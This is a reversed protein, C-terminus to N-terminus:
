YDGVYNLIRNIKKLRDQAKGMRARIEAELNLLKGYAIEREYASETTEVTDLLKELKKIFDKDNM